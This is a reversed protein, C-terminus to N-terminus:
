LVNQKEERKKKKMMQERRYHTTRVIGASAYKEMARSTFVNLAINAQVNSALFTNMLLHWFRVFSFSSFNFVWLLKQLTAYIERLRCERVRIFSRGLHEYCYTQM